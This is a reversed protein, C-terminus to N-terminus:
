LSARKILRFPNKIKETRNELILRAALEGMKTHDTSLVTIGDLLIEKLPTENYSLIGVDKGVRLKESRCLKILNVLDTEEIVIYAEGPRMPTGADIESVIDWPIRNHTCFLRFGAAIEPPYAIIRPQVLILKKYKRLLDM